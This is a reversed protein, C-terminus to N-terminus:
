GMSTASKRYATRVSRLDGTKVAAVTSVMARVMPALVAIKLTTLATRMRGRGNAEGPRRICTASFFSLSLMEFKEAETSL